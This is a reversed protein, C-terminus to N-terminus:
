PCDLRSNLHACGSLSLLGFGLAILKIITPM